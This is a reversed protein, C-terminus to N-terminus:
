DGAQDNNRDSSETAPETTRWFSRLAQGYAGGELERLAHLIVPTKSRSGLKSSFTMRGVPQEAKRAAHDITQENEGFLVLDANEDAGDVYKGFGHKEKLYTTWEDLNPSGRAKVDKYLIEQTDIGLAWAFCNYSGEPERVIMFKTLNPFYDGWERVETRNPERPLTAEPSHGAETAPAPEEQRQVPQSIQSNQQMKQIVRQVYQNGVVQGMQRAMMQRQVMQLRSDGLRTAHSRASAQGSM